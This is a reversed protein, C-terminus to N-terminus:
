GGTCIHQACSARGYVSGNGSSSNQAHNVGVHSAHTAVSKPEDM